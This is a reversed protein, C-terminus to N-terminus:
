NLKKAKSDIRNVAEFNEIERLKAMKEKLQDLTHWEVQEFIVNPVNRTGNVRVMEEQLETLFEDVLKWDNEYRSLEPESFEGQGDVEDDDLNEVKVDEIQSLDFHRNSSSQAHM